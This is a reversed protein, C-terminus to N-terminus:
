RLTSANALGGADDANIQAAMAAGSLRVLVVVDCPQGGSHRPWGPGIALAILPLDPQSRYCLRAAQMCWAWRRSCRGREIAIMAPPPTRARMAGYRRCPSAIGYINLVDDAVTHRYPDRPAGADGAAHQQKTTRVRGTRGHCSCRAPCDNTGIISSKTELKELAIITSAPSTHVAHEVSATSNRGSSTVRVGCRM